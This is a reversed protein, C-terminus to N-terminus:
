AAALAGRLLGAPAAVAVQLVASAEGDPDTVALAAVRVVGEGAAGRSCSCAVAAIGEVKALVPEPNGGDGRGPPLILASLDSLDVSPVPAAGDIVDDTVDGNDTLALLRSSPLLAVRSGLVPGDDIENLTAEYSASLLLFEEGAGDEDADVGDGGEPAAAAAAAHGADASASARGDRRPLPVTVTSAGSVGALYANGGGGREAIPPLLLHVVAYRLPPRTVVVGAAGDAAADGSGQGRLFAEFDALAYLAVANHGGPINGRQFLALHSGGGVVAAAELNLKATGTVRPDARLASFLAAGDFARSAGTDPNLLV